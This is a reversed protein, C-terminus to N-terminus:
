ISSRVINKGAILGSAKETFLTKGKAANVIFSPVKVWNYQGTGKKKGLTVFVQPTVAPKLEKVGEPNGILVSNLNDALHLAQREAYILQKPELNGADGASWVNDLGTVRLTKDLNLSGQEDLLQTPVFRTNPRMGYLPLFLDAEVRQGDSLTIYVQDGHKDLSAVRVGHLIKVQLRELEMAATKGVDPRLVPLPADGGIILTIQKLEGYEYGLEAATEVGTPGAGAIVISKADTVKRQLSHLAGLSDEYTGVTTFPLQGPYSSGTAIVLQTYIITKADSAVDVQVSNSATDIGTATGLIFEFADKSYKDFGTQIAHFLEEDAIEGPLVGRVAAINWYHHTSPSILIVKLDKVKPTTYKLLKHATGIGAYGAGIIVVTEAM